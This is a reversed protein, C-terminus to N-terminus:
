LRQWLYIEWRNLHKASFHPNTKKKIKGQSFLFVATFNGTITNIVTNNEIALSQLLAESIWRLEPKRRKLKQPVSHNSM